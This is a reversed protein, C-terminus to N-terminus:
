PRPTPAECRVTVAGEVMKRTRSDAECSMIMSAFVMLYLGSRDTHHKQWQCKFDSM